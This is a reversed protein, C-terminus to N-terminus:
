GALAPPHANKQVVSSRRGCITLAHTRQKAAHRVRPSTPAHRVRLSTPARRVRLSTPAWRVRLSTPARRVRLLTPAQRAIVIATTPSPVKTLRRPHSMHVTSPVPARASRTPPSSRRSTRSTRNRRPSWKAWSCCFSLCAESRVVRM